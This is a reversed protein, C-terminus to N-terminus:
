GRRHRPDQGGGAVLPQDLDPDVIRLRSGGLAQRCRPRPASKAPLWEQVSPQVGVRIYSLPLAGAKWAPWAPEIGTMREITFHRTLRLDPLRWGVNSARNSGTGTCERASVPPSLPGGHCAFGAWFAAIRAREASFRGPKTCPWEGPVPQNQPNTHANNRSNTSAPTVYGIASAPPTFNQQWRSGDPPVSASGLSCHAWASPSHHWCSYCQM